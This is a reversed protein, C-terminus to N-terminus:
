FELQEYDAKPEPEFVDEYCLRLGESLDPSSYTVPCWDLGAKDVTWMINVGSEKMTVTFGHAALVNLINSVSMM